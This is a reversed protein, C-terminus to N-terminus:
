SIDVIMTPPLLAGRLDAGEFTAMSVDTRLFKAGELRARKLRAEALEAESFITRCCSAKVFSAGPLMAGEFSADDLTAQDWVSDPAFIRDLSAGSLDASDFRAGTLNARVFSVRHARGEYLRFESLECDDFHADDVIAETFDASSLKSRDFRAALWLGGGFLTREGTVDQFNARDGLATSFNTDNVTARQFSADALQAGYCDARELCADDFNSFSLDADSLNAGTLDAGTLKTKRLSAKRLDAGALSQGSLDMESLDAGGLAMGKLSGGSALREQVERRLRQRDEEPKDAPKNQPKVAQMAISKGRLGVYLATPPAPQAAPSRRDPIASLRPASPPTLAPPHKRASPPAPPFPELPRSSVPAAEVPASPPVRVSEALSEATALLEAIQDADANVTPPDEIKFRRVTSPGEPVGPKAAAPARQEATPHDSSAEDPVATARVLHELMGTTAIATRLEDDDDDDLPPIDARAEVPDPLTARSDADDHRVGLLARLEEESEISERLITPADDSDDDIIAVPAPPASAAAAPPASAAAAPPASAAAAPPASAAAAPPVSALLHDVEEPWMPAQGQISLATVVRLASVCSEDYIAFNGRWTISCTDREADIRLTDAVMTLDFTPASGPLGAVRVAARVGPLQTELRPLVPHLGDLVLWEGGELFPCRQDPPAAHFYSWAFTDPLDPVQSFMNAPDLDRLLRRRYPWSSALPGLGAPGEPDNPDVINPMRAGVQPEIGAPNEDFGSGRNTREYRIPIWDFPLPQEPKTGPAPGARDGYIHLTKDLLPRAGVIAIRVAMARCDEGPAHANGRFLVDARPLYPALDSAGRLSREVKAEYHEDEAVVPDPNVWEMVKQHRLGFTAKVIITSRLQGHTRWLRAGCTVGTGASLSIPWNGEAVMPM